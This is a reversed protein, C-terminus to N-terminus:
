QVLPLTLFPFVTELTNELPGREINRKGYDVANEEEDDNMDVSDFTDEDMEKHEQEVIKKRCLTLQFNIFQLFDIDNSGKLSDQIQM